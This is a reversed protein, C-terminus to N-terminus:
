PTEEPPDHDFLTEPAREAIRPASRTAANPTPSGAAARALRCRRLPAARAPQRRPMAKGNSM